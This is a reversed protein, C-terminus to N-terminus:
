AVRWEGSAVRWEGSAVRWEGLLNLSVTKAVKKGHAGVVLLLNVVAPDLKIGSSNDFGRKTRKHKESAGIMM